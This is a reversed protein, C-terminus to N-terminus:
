SSTCLELLAGPDSTPSPFCLLLHAPAQLVTTAHRLAPLLWHSQSCMPGNIAPSPLLPWHASLSLLFGPSHLLTLVLNGHWPSHAATAPKPRPLRFGIDILSGQKVSMHLTQLM